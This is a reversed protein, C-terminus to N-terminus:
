RFLHVFGEGKILEDDFGTIEYVFYYVGEVAEEKFLNTGDWEAQVDTLKNVM